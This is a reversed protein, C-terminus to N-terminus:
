YHNRMPNKALYGYFGINAESLSLKDLTIVAGSLTITGNKYKRIGGMGDSTKAHNRSDFRLEASEAFILAPASFPKIEGLTFYVNNIEYDGSIRNGNRQLVFRPFFIGSAHEGRVNSTIAMNHCGPIHLHCNDRLLLIVSNELEISKTKSYPDVVLNPISLCEINNYLWRLREKVSSCSFDPSVRHKQEAYQVLDDLIRRNRDHTFGKKLQLLNIAGYFEERKM